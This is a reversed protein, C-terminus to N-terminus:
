KICEEILAIWNDDYDLGNWDNCLGTSRIFNRVQMGERFHVPHPIGKEDWCYNIKGHKEKIERFFKIGEKQLWNKTTTILENSIPKISM